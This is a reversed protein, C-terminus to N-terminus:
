KITVSAEDDILLARIADVLDEVGQYVFIEENSPLTNYHPQFPSVIWGNNVRRVEFHKKM